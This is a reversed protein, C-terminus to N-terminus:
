RHLAIVVGPMIEEGFAVEARLVEPLEVTFGGSSLGTIIPGTISLAPINPGPISPGPTGLLFGGSYTGPFRLRGWFSVRSFCAPGPHGLRLEDPLSSYGPNTGTVISAGIGMGIGIGIGIGSGLIWGVAGPAGSSGLPGVDGLVVGPVVGTVVGGTVGGMVPGAAGEVTLWLRTVIRRGCPSSHISVPAT